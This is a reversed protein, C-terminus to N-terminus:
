ELISLLHNYSKQISNFRNGSIVDQEVFFHEMGAMTRYEFLMKYDIIGSGVETMEKGPGETMDKIHWLSFRGPYKEFYEVPDMGAYAIWYLDIEMFVYAPDTYELLLDYPIIGELPYFEFDHNHYGFRLSNESCLSGLENLKEALHKYDGPKQRQETGIWPWVLYEIGAELHADIVERSEDNSFMLHSGITKMGLKNTLDRFYAPKMGYFLGNKYGAAELHRYGIDAIKKLTKKPNENMEDRLSYLQLGIPPRAAPLTFLSCRPLFMGALLGASGAKIFNRRKMKKHTKDSLRKM